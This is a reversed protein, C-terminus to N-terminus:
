GARSDVLFQAEGTLVPKDAVTCVTECNVRRRKPDIEKVTITAKVTDGIRVPARFKLSQTVYVAGPGPLRTGAVTSILSATYLGHAIRGGMPSAQAFEDNIHIPNDDGSVGAFLVVDAETVTRAYSASMGPELDEIYYGHLDDSM